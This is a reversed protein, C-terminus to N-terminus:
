VIQLKLKQGSPTSRVGSFDVRKRFWKEQLNDPKQIVSNTFLSLIINHEHFIPNIPYNMLYLIFTSYRNKKTVRLQVARFNISFIASRKHQELFTNTTTQDSLRIRSRAVRHVTAQWVGREMPNKLCSYGLPKGNGEGPSRGSEPISGMDGAQCASEKGSLWRLLGLISSHM